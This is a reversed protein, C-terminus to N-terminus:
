GRLLADWTAPGIVGDHDLGMRAQFCLVASRTNPGFDGDAGDPGVGCRRLILLAQAARVAESKDGIRLSPLEVACCGEAM